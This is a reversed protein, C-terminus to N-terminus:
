DRTGSISTRPVEITVCITGPCAPSPTQSSTVQSPQRTSSPEAGEIELKDTQPDYHVTLTRDEGINVIGYVSDQRTNTKGKNRMIMEGLRWGKFSSESV